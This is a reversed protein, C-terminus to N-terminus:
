LEKGTCHRIFSIHKQPFVAVVAIVCWTTGDEQTFVAEGHMIGKEWKGDFFKKEEYHLQGQGHPIWTGHASFINEGYYMPHGEEPSPRMLYDLQFYEKTKYKREAEDDAIKKM